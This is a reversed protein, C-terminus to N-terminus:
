GIPKASATLKQQALAAVSLKLEAADMAVLHNFKDRELGHADTDKAMSLQIKAHADQAKTSMLSDKTQAEQQKIQLGAMTAKANANKVAADAQKMAIDAQVMPDPPPPQVQSPNLAYSDMDKIGSTVFMKQLVAYAKEKPYFPKLEPDTSMMKHLGIWKKMEKDKEGYGLAFSVDVETTEPWSTFDIPKWSGAVKMVKQQSENEVTLRYLMTFLDRLFNEAFNRAVIKQRIQSVSILQEVMDGSNQKSVADKNLGQSLSSIGTIAEKDSDLMSITQFVFPNLGQQPIPAIGDPRTVNVIGGIRNEMLERPNLVAGRVVQLRPNNTILAHNIISRTLYTRANQTAILQKAYNNGWFAHTIPLPVFSVFPKREVPEKDLITDGVMTIKYLTSLGEGDDEELETYAEYVMCRRRAKSMTEVDRDGIADDVHKFRSLQDPDADEWLKEDDRLNMVVNKPYGLKLLESITKRQKHWVVEALEISPAMASIGFEEPPLAKIHIRSVDRKVTFRVRKISQGDEHIEYDKIGTTPNQALYASVEELSTDALDFHETKTMTEWWVKVVAARNTLGDHIVDQMMQFGRNQNFLVDSCWDTRGQAAGADEGPTTSFQVPQYNASFVELIQAKMQEVGEMVDLSVYSSDGDHSKHPLEGDYYRTVKEREKALKSAVAGSSHDIAYTLRAVIEDDTLKTM